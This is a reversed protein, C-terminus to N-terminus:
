NTKPNHDYFLTRESILYAMVAEQAYMEATFQMIERIQEETCAIRVPIMIERHEKSTTPSVWTGKAAKMLTMGGVLEVVRKDWTRHYDYYVVKNSRPLDPNKGDHKGMRHPVLIEWLPLEM